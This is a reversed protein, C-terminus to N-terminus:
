PLVRPAPAGRGVLGIRRRPAAPRFIFSAGGLYASGVQADGAIGFSESFFWRAGLGFHGVVGSGLGRVKLGAAYDDHRHDYYLMLESGPASKGRLTVGFGIRGLLYHELDHPLTLGSAHYDIRGLAYGAGLEVFAGRLTPGLRALDYRGDLSLEALSKSFHEPRHRQHVFGLTVELFSQDRLSPEDLPGTLRYQSEFRYRASDARASFWGSPSLRFPGIQRSVRQVVFDRYAFQPDYVRRYGLETEWLAPPRLRPAVAGGDSSVTGYIDALYSTSFLGFGAMTAAAAPAVFYRSAGTFVITLGGALFVGLGIGEMLLLRKGSTSEGLVLHGTGHALLGPVVAAPLAVARRAVSPGPKPTPMTDIERAQEGEIGRDRSGEAGEEAHAPLTLLLALLLALSRM